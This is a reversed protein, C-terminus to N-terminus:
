ARTEDFVAGCRRADFGAPWETKQDFIAGTVDADKLSAGDLKAEKLNAGALHARELKANSLVAGWFKAGALNAGVFDTWELRADWFEAGRLDTERLDFKRFNNFSESPPPPNKGLVTLIAQIDTRPKPEHDEGTRVTWWVSRKPSSNWRANHRVYATLVNAIQWYDKPWDKSIRSLAYIGGLRVEINPQGDKLEAGLQGTAQAFRSTIQGQRDIDLKDQTAKLNRATFLLGTLIAAGGAAQVIATWIKIRNDTEYQLLTAELQARKDFQLHRDAAIQRRLDAAQWTPYRSVSLAAILALLGTLLLLVALVTRILNKPILKRSM